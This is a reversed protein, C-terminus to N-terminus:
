ASTDLNGEVAFRIQGAHAAEVEGIVAEIRRLTSDPFARGVSMRGTFWHRLIRSITM